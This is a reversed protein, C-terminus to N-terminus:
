LSFFAKGFHGQADGGSGNFFWCGPPFKEIFTGNLLSNFLKKGKRKLGVGRSM